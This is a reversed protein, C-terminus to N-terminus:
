AVGWAAGWWASLLKCGNAPLLRMVFHEAAARSRTLVALVLSCSTQLQRVNKLQLQLGCLSTQLTAQRAITGSNQGTLMNAFNPPKLLAAAPTHETHPATPNCTEAAAPFTKQHPAHTRPQKCTLNTQLLVTTVQM